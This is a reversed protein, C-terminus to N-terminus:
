LRHPARWRQVGDVKPGALDVMVPGTRGRGASRLVNMPEPRNSMAPSVASDRDAVSVRAASRREISRVLPLGGIPESWSRPVAGSRVDLQDPQGGRVRRAAQM